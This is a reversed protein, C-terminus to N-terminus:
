YDNMQELTVQAEYMDHNIRPFYNNTQLYSRSRNKQVRFFFIYHLCLWFLM